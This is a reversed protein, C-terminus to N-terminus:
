LGNNSEIKGLYSHRVDGINLCVKSSENRSKQKSVLRHIHETTPDPVVVYFLSGDVRFIIVIITRDEASFESCIVTDHLDTNYYRM